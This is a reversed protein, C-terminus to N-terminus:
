LQAIVQELGSNSEILISRIGASEGAQIDRINDGIFVSDETSAKFRYVAKELLISEPKRSLSKGNYEPHDPSYYIELIEIGAKTFADLMKQHIEAITEHTYLGKAIGGQNTVIVFQYGKTKLNLLSPIVDPLLEFDEKKCVYDGIERNLVGDRDLFVIKNFFKKYDM